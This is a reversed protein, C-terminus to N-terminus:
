PGSIECWHTIHNKAIEPCIWQGDVFSATYYVVGQGFDVAILLNECNKTPLDDVAKWGKQKLISELIQIQCGLFILPLNQGKKAAILVSKLHAIAIYLADQM